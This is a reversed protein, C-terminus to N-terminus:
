RSADGALAEKLRRESLEHLSDTTHRSLKEFLPKAEATEGLASYARALNYTASRSDPDIQLALKLDVVAQKPHGEELLLKGRLSKAPVSRNDIAIARDLELLADKSNTPDIKIMCEALLYHLDSDVIGGAIASKLENAANTFNGQKYDTLALFFRPDAKAPSLRAATAFDSHAVNLKGQLTDASGRVIFVEPDQPFARVAQSAMDSAKAFNGTDAYMTVLNLYAFLDHPNKELEVAFLPYADQYLGLKSYAVGLLNACRTDFTGQSRLATLIEIAGHFDGLEFETLAIAYQHTLHNPVDSNTSKFTVLATKFDHARGYLWGLNFTDVPSLHHCGELKDLITKAREYKGQKLLTNAQDFVKQASCAQEPQAGYCLGSTFLALLCVLRGMSKISASKYTPSAPETM